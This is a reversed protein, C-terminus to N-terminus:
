DVGNISKKCIKIKYGLANLMKEVDTYYLSDRSVKHFINSKNLDARRCVESISCNQYEALRKITDFITKM